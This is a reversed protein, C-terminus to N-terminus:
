LAKQLKLLQFIGYEDFLFIYVFLFNNNFKGFIEYIPRESYATCVLLENKFDGMYQFCICCNELSSRESREM